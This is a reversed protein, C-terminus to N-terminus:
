NEKTIIISGSIEILKGSAADMFYYGDSHAESQVKGSSEWKRVIKGDCGVMEVTYRSGFGTIKAKSADTCSSLALLSISTILLMKM